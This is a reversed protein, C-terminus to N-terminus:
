KQKGRTKYAKSVRQNFTGRKPGVAMAKAYFIKEGLEEGYQETMAAHASKAGKSWSKRVPM